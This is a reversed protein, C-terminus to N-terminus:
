RFETLLLGVATSNRLTPTYGGELDIVELRRGAAAVGAAWGEHWVGVGGLQVAGCGKAKRSCCLQGM